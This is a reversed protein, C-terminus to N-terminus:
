LTYWRNLELLFLPKRTPEKKSRKKSPLSDSQALNTNVNVCENTNSISPSSTVLLNGGM